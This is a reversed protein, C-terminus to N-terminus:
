HWGGIRLGRLLSGPFRMMASSRTTARMPDVKGLTRSYPKLHVVKSQGPYRKVAEVVDAGARFAHGNDLQALVKSSANDFLAFWPIGGDLEEFEVTHNHYGTVM